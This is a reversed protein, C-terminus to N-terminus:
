VVTSIVYQWIIGKCTSALAVVKLEGYCLLSGVM